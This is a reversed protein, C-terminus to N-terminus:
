ALLSLIMFLNGLESKLLLLFRGYSLSFFRSIKGSNFSSQFAVHLTSISATVVSLQLLTLFLLRFAASNM